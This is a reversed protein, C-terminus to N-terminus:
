ISVILDPPLISDFRDGMGGFGISHGAKKSSGKLFIKDLLHTGSNDPVDTLQNM